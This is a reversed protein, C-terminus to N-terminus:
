YGHFKFEFIGFNKILFQLALSYFNKCPTVILYKWADVISRTQWEDNLQMLVNFMACIM